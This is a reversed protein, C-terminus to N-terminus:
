WLRDQATAYGQAFYLDEECEAKIYPVGREDRRVSVEGRLSSLKVVSYNIQSQPFDTPMSQLPGTDAPLMVAIPQLFLMSVKGRCSYKKLVEISAGALIMRLCDTLM